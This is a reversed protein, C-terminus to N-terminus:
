NVLTLIFSTNEDAKLSHPAGKDMKIFVGPRMIIEVGALNFVGKGEIVYVFGEKTSTHETIDTGAAMCFVTVNLKDTRSIVKSLIGGNSYNIFDKLNEDM